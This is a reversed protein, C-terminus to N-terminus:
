DAGKSTQAYESKPVAETLEFTKLVDLAYEKLSDLDDNPIIFEIKVAVDGNRIFYKKLTCPVNSHTVHSIESINDMIYYGKEDKPIKSLDYSVINYLSTYETELCAMGNFKSETMKQTQEVESGWIANMTTLIYDDLYYYKLGMGSSEYGHEDLRLSSIKMNVVGYKNASNESNFIMELDTQDDATAYIWDTPRIIRYGTGYFYKNDDYVTNSTHAPLSSTDSSSEFVVGDLFEELYKIGKEEYDLTYVATIEILDNGNEAMYFYTRCPVDKYEVTNLEDLNTAIINGLEDTGYEIDSTDYYSIDMPFDAYFMYTVMNSIRNNQELTDSVATNEASSYGIKVISYMLEAYESATMSNSDFYASSSINVGVIGMLTDPINLQANYGKEANQLIWGDPLFFSYGEGKIIKKKIETVEASSVASQLLNDSVADQKTSTNSDIMNVLFFLLVAMFIIIPVNTNKKSQVINKDVSKQWQDKEPKGWIKNRIITPIVFICIIFIIITM